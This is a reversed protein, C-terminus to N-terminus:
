KTTATLHSIDFMCVTKSQLGRGSLHCIGEATNRFLYIFLFIIYKNIQRDTTAVNSSFSHERVEHKTTPVNTSSLSRKTSKQFDLNGDFYPHSVVKPRCKTLINCRISPIASIAMSVVLSETIDCEEEVCHIFVQPYIHLEGGLVRFGAGTPCATRGREIEFSHLKNTDRPM